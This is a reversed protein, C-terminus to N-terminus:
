EILSRGHAQTSGGRQRLRPGTGRRGGSEQACGALGGIHVRAGGLTDFGAELIPVEDSDVDLSLPDDVDLLEHQIRSRVRAIPRGHDRIM